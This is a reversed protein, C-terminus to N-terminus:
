SLHRSRVARQATDIPSSSRKSDFPSQVQHLREIEEALRDPSTWQFDVDIM